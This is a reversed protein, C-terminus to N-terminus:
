GELEHGFQVKMDDSITILTRCLDLLSEHDATQLYRRAIGALTGGMPGLQQVMPEILKIVHGAIPDLEPEPAPERRGNVRDLLGM